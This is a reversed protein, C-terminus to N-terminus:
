FWIFPLIYRCLQRVYVKRRNEKSDYQEQYRAGSIGGFVVQTKYRFKM